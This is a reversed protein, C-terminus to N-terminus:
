PLKYFAHQKIKVTFVVKSLWGPPNKIIDPNYYLLADKTLNSGTLVAQWAEDASIISQHTDPLSLAYARSSNDGNWCSFQMPRLVTNLLTGDSFYQQDTRRKIVEGVAIMGELGQNGAELILTARIFAEEVIPNM